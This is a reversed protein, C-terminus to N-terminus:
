GALQTVHLHKVGAQLTQRVPPVTIRQQPDQRKTPRVQRAQARRLELRHQLPHPSTPHQQKRAALPGHVHEFTLESLSRTDAADPHMVGIGEGDASGAHRPHLGLELPAQGEDFEVGLAGLDEVMGVPQGEQGAAAESLSVNERQRRGHSGESWRLEVRDPALNM